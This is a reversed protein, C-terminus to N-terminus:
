IEKSLGSGTTSTTDQASQEESRSNTMSLLDGTEGVVRKREKINFSARFLDHCFQRRMESSPMGQGSKMAATGASVVRSLATIDRSPQRSRAIWLTATEATDMTTHWEIPPPASGEEPTWFEKELTLFAQDNSEVVAQGDLQKATYDM